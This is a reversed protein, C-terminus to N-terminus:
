QKTEEENAVTTEETLTVSKTERPVDTKRVPRITVDSFAKLANVMGLLCALVALPKTVTGWVNDTELIAMLPPIGGGLAYLIGLGLTKAKV